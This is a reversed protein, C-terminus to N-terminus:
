TLLDPFSEPGVKQQQLCIFAWPISELLLSPFYERGVAPQLQLRTYCITYKLLVFSFLNREQILSIAKSFSVSLYENPQIGFLPKRNYQQVFATWWKLLPNSPESSPKIVLTMVPFLLYSCGIFCTRDRDQFSFRFPELQTIPQRGVDSFSPAERQFTYTSLHRSSAASEEEWHLVAM